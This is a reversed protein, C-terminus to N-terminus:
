KFLDMLRAWFGKEEQEPEEITESEDRKIKETKLVFQVSNVNENETSVFSVVELDSKDYDAIMNDVEETMQDPLDSTSDQLKATGDQLEGVGNNLKNTGGSLDVIGQHLERYTNSLESVGGTYDVLGSHFTQYNASLTAIGEQLQDLGDMDEVSSPLEKQVEDLNSAIATLADMVGQLTGDVADFGQKVESYTGKATQAATYTDVLKKVVEKDAGSDDLAQIDKETIDYSPIDEIAADLANYAAAYNEKLQQLGDISEGLGNSLDKFGDELQDLESLDMEELNGLSNSMTEFAKNMDKSGNVLETSAGDLDSIGNKYQKSGDQLDTVGNNLESIGNNLEAVGDDLEAIADSLTKMEGTMDDVDPADISMSAPVGTIEMSDLEFNVVDAEVVFTDEQEPMVTFTVQKDKGANAVMGDDAKMNSFVSADFPISIQLMYNEFFVPNVKENASTELQIQVLGDKGVLEEPRIKKGDLFYSIAIDWPLPEDNLNGQYYFKGEPAIFQVIQDNQELESLDTLNKLSSYTGFDVTKGAEAVDLTNVVYMEQRDGTASLTGYIVEDKSSIKGDEQAIKERSDNDKASATVLLTPFVLIVAVFVLLVKKIRRM